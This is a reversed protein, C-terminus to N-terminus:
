NLKGNSPIFGRNSQVRQGASAGRERESEERGEEEEEDDRGEDVDGAVARGTGRQCLRVHPGDEFMGM